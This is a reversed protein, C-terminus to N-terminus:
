GAVLERLDSGLLEHLRRLARMSRVRVTTQRVGLADATEAVSADQMYRLVLVARDRASLRRLAEDVAVRLAVDETRDARDPVFGTPLEGSSRRRAHDLYVRVLMQNTYAEPSAARRVKRWHVFVRGLTEQVLDEALHRDVTLMCASRFLQKQRARAFERFEAETDGTM